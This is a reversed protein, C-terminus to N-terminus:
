NNSKSLTPDGATSIQINEYLDDPEFNIQNYEKLSEKLTEKPQVSYQKVLPKIKGQYYINLIEDKSTVPLGLSSRLTASLNYLHSPKPYYYYVGDLSADYGGIRHSIINMDTTAFMSVLTTIQSTTLNHTVNNETISILDNIKTLLNLDKAKNLISSIIQLQRQGREIDSDYYRSRAFALAEEGNLLQRGKKLSVTNAEGNANQEVMDFPVDVEVGGLMNITDEFAKFNIIVYFNIPVNLLNNVSQITNDIGGYAYAHTIKDYFSVNAKSIDEKTTMLTLSDRPINVIHAEKSKKNVTAYIISDTRSNERTQGEAKRSDNEDIGVILLSFKDFTQDIPITKQSQKFTSVVSKDIKFYSYAFTAIFTAVLIILTTYILKKIFLKKFNDPKSYRNAM